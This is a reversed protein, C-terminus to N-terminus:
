VSETANAMARVQRVRSGLTRTRTARMRLVGRLCSARRRERTREHVFRRGAFGKHHCSRCLSLGKNGLNRLEERLTTVRGRLRTVQGSNSARRRLRGRVLLQTLVQIVHLAGRRLLRVPRRLSTYRSSPVDQTGLYFLRAAGKGTGRLGHKYCNYMFLGSTHGKTAGSGQAGVESRLSSETTYFIRRSVVTRRAKRMM